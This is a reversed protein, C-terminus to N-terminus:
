DVDWQDIILKLKTREREARFKRPLSEVGVQQMGLYSVLWKSQIFGRGQMVYATEPEVLGLVWYKLASVPMAVGLQRSVLADVSGFYQLREDGYDIVVSHKDIVIVTRGQGFPGSVELEDKEDKHSWMIAASFSENKDALAIRGSFSWKTKKYLHERETLQFTEPSKEQLSTCSALFISILFISQWRNLM